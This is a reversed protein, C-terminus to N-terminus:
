RAKAYETLSKYVKIGLGDAISELGKSLDVYRQEIGSGTDGAAGDQTGDIILVYDETRNEKAADAMDQTIKVVEQTDLQTPTVGYVTTSSTTVPTAPALAKALEELYAMDQQQSELSAAIAPEGTVPDIKSYAINLAQTYVESLPGDMVVTKADPENELARRLHKM